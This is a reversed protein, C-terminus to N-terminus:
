VPVEHLREVCELIGVPGAVDLVLHHHVLVLRALLDAGQPGLNSAQLHLQHLILRHARDWARHAGTRRRM